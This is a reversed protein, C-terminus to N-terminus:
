EATILDKNQHPFLILFCFVLIRLLRLLLIFFYFVMRWTNIKQNFYAFCYHLKLTWM